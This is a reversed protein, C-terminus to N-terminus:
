SEYPVPGTRKDRAMYKSPVSGVEALPPRQNFLASLHLVVARDAHMCPCVCRWWSWVIISCCSIHTSGWLFLFRKERKWLCKWVLGWEEKMHLETLAAMWLMAQMQSPGVRPSCLPSPRPPRRTSHVLSVGRKSVSEMWPLTSSGWDKVPRRSCGTAKVSDKELWLAHKHSFPTTGFQCCNICKPAPKICSM